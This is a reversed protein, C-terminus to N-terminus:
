KDSELLIEILQKRCNKCLKISSVSTERAGYSFYKVEEEGQCANCLMWKREEEKDHFIM